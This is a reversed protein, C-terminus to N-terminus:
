DRSSIEWEKNIEKDEIAKTKYAIMLEKVLNQDIPGM